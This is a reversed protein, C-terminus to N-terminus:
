SAGGDEDRAFKRADGLATLLDELLARQQELIRRQDPGESHIHPRVTSQYIDAAKYLAKIAERETIQRTRRSPETM